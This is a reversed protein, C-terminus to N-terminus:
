LIPTDIEDRKIFIKRPMQNYLCILKLIIHLSNYQNKYIKLFICMEFILLKEINVYKEANKM